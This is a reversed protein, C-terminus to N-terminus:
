YFDSVNECPICPMKRLEELVYNSVMYQDCVKEVVCMTTNLYDCTKVLTCLKFWNKQEAKELMITLRGVSKTKAYCNGVLKNLEKTAETRAKEREAYVEEGTKNDTCSVLLLALLLYRM